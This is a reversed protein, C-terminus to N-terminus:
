SGDGNGSGNGSAEEAKIAKLVRKRKKLQVDVARDGRGNDPLEVTLVQSAAHMEQSQHVEMDPGIRNMCRALNKFAGVRSKGTLAEQAQARLLKPWLSELEEDAMRNVAMIWERRGGRSEDHIWRSLTEPCVKLRKAVEIQTLNRGSTPDVYAMM